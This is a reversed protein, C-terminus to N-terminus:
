WNFLRPFFGRNEHFKKLNELNKKLTINQINVDECTSLRNKLTSIYSDFKKENIIVKDDKREIERELDFSEKKYLKYAIFPFITWVCM